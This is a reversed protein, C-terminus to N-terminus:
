LAFSQIQKYSWELEVKEIQKSVIPPTFNASITNNLAISVFEILMHYIFMSYLIIINFIPLINVLNLIISWLDTNRKLIIEKWKNFFILTQSSLRKYTRNIPAISYKISKIFADIRSILVGFTQVLFLFKKIAKTGQKNKM